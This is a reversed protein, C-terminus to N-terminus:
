AVPRARWLRLLRWEGGQVDVQLELRAGDATEVMIVTRGDALANQRGWGVIPWRQGQWWVAQPQWQQHRFRAEVVVPQDLLEGTGKQLGTKQPQGLYRQLLQLMAQASALKNGRRDFPWVHKEGWDADAAALHVYVLGVPKEDTGGGPGAIGTVALAVDSGLCRRVGRGMEAAVEASVAGVALLTSEQVGLLHMKAENSYSVIGGLVYASSGAVDTLLSSVLGGTCSEALALTRNQARLQRGVAASLALLQDYAPPTQKM